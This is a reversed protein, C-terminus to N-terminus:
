LFFPLCKVVKKKRGLSPLVFAWNQKECLDICFYAQAKWFRCFITKLHTAM